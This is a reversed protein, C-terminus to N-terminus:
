GPEVLRRPKRKSLIRSITPLMDGRQFGPPTKPSPAGTLAKQPPSNITQNKVNMRIRQPRCTGEAAKPLLLHPAYDQFGTPYPGTELRGQSLRRFLGHLECPSRNVNLGNKASIETKQRWFSKHKNREWGSPFTAHAGRWRTQTLSVM